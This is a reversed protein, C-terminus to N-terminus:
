SMVKLIRVGAENYVEHFDNDEVYEELYPRQPRTNLIVMLYTVNYRNVMYEIDSAPGFPIMVVKRHGSYYHIDTKISMIIDSPLSNKELWRAVMVRPLNEDSGYASEKLRGVSSFPTILLLILLIYLVGRFKVNNNRLSKLARFVGVGIIISLLPVLSAFHRRDGSFAWGYSMGLGLILLLIYISILYLPDRKEYSGILGWLFFIFPITSIVIFLTIFLNGFSISKIKILDSFSNKKLYDRLTPPKLTYFSLIDPTYRIIKSNGHAPSGFLIINRIFFPSVILSVVFCLIMLGKFIQSKRMQSEQRILLISVIILYTPLILIGEPRALWGLGVSIGLLGWYRNNSPTELILILFYFSLTLFFGYVPAALANISTTWYVYNLLIIVIAILGVTRNYLKVGIHYAVILSLSAFIATLVNSIQISEGFVKFLFALLVPYLPYRHPDPHPITQWQFSPYAIWEVVYGRGNYLNDALEIHHIRDNLAHGNSDALYIRFGTSVVILAIALILLIKESEGKKLLVYM